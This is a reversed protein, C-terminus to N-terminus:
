LEKKEKEHITRRHKSRYIRSGDPCRWQGDWDGLSREKASLRM